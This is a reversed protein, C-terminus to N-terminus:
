EGYVIVEYSAFLGLISTARFDVHHITTIGAAQAASNISADGTAILGLISTAKGTGMKTAQGSAPTATVPGSVGTYLGGFVPSSTQACGTLMFVVLLMASFKAFRQTLKTM